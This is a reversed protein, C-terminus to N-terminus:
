NKDNKEKLKAEINEALVYPSYEKFQILDQIEGITLGVWTRQQPTTYLPGIKQWRPNNKEFGWEVQQADVCDTLGTDEHQFMWAVPTGQEQKPQPTTYLYRVEYGKWEQPNDLVMRVHAPDCQSWAVNPFRCQGAVPEGQEQQVPAPQPSKYLPRVETQFSKIESAAMNATEQLFYVSHKQAFKHGWYVAWAEPKQEQKIVPDFVIGGCRACVDGGQEQQAATFDQRKKYASFAALGERICAASNCHSRKLQHMELHDHASLLAAGLTRILGDDCHAVFDGQEQKALAEELAKICQKVDAYFSVNDYVKNLVDLAQKLVEKM